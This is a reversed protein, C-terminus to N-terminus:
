ETVKVPIYISLYSKPDDPDYTHDTFSFDYEGALPYPTNLIWKGYINMFMQTMTNSDVVGSYNYVVYDNAPLEFAIMDQPISDYKEVSVSAVHHFVDNVPGFNKPYLNVGYYKNPIINSIKDLSKELLEWSDEPNEVNRDIPLNVQCPFGIMKLAPLRVIEPNTRDEELTDKLVKVSFRYCGKLQRYSTTKRAESPTVGFYLKFARTFSENSDFMHDIAIDIVRLNTTKLEEMASTLRRKRVYGMITEDVVAKFIRHFHYQSINVQDSIMQLSLKNKLNDEIYSIAIDLEHTYDM